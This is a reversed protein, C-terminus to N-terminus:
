SGPTNWRRLTGGRLDWHGLDVGDDWAWWGDVPGLEVHFSQAPMYGEGVLVFTEDGRTAVDLLLVAHGPFGGRVLVDGARPGEM